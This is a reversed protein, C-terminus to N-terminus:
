CQIITIDLIRSHHAHCGVVGTVLPERSRLALQNERSDQATCLAFEGSTHIDPAVGRHAANNMRSLGNSALVVWDLHRPALLIGLDVQLHSSHPLDKETEAATGWAPTLGAPTHSMHHDDFVWRPRVANVGPHNYGEVGSSDTQHLLVVSV